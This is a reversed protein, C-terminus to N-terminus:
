LERARRMPSQFRGGTGKPNPRTGAYPRREHPPIAALPILCRYPCPRRPSGKEFRGTKQGYECIFVGARREIASSAAIDEPTRGAASSAPFIMRGTSPAAIGEECTSIM